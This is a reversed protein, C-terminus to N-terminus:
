GKLKQLLKQFFGRDDGHKEIDILYAGKLKTEVFIM